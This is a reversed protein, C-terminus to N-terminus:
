IFLVKKFGNRCQMFSGTGPHKNQIASHTGHNLAVREGFVIEPSLSKCRM